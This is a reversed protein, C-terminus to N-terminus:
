EGYYTVFEGNPKRYGRPRQRSTDEKGLTILMVPVYREPIQLAQMIADEDFGIMPCTDWGRDKAILMFQMASLSANRIAEDRKFQDGKSEYMSHVEQVTQDFELQDIIGLNLMGENMPGIDHYAELDGLVVIAASSSLVKYQKYAADYVKEKSAKDTVVAYHAHQLNFASPAYKVLSFMEELEERSIPVDPNFKMASRRSKLLETFSNAVQNM